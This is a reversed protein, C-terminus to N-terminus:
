LIIDFDKVFKKRFFLKFNTTFKISDGLDIGPILDRIM